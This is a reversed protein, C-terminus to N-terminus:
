YTQPPYLTESTCILCLSSSAMRQLNYRPTVLDPLTITLHAEHSCPVIQNISITICMNLLRVRFVPSFCTRTHTHAQCFFSLFDPVFSFVFLRSLLMNFLLFIVLNSSYVAYLFGGPRNHLCTVLKTVNRALRYAHGPSVLSVPVCSM